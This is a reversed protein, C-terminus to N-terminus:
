LGPRHRDARRRHDHHVPHRHAQAHTDVEIDPLHDRARRLTPNAHTPPAGPHSRGGERCPKRYRLVSSSRSGCLAASFRPTEAPLGQGVTRQTVEDTVTLLTVDTMVHRAGGTVTLLTVDTMVHRAGGTMALLAAVHRDPAPASGLNGRQTVSWECHCGAEPREINRGPISGGLVPSDTPGCSSDVVSSRPHVGILWRVPTGRREDAHMQPQFSKRRGGNLRRARWWGRDFGGVFGCRRM